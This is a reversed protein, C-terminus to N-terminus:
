QGHTKGTVWLTTMFTCVSFQPIPFIHLPITHLLAFSLNFNFLNTFDETDQLKFFFIKGMSMFMWWLCVMFRYCIDAPSYTQVCFILPHELIERLPGTSLALRLEVSPLFVVSVMQQRHTQRPARGCPAGGSSRRPGVCPAAGPSGCVSAGWAQQRTQPIETNWRGSAAIIFGHLSHIENHSPLLVPQLSGVNIPGVQHYLVVEVTCFAYNNGQALCFQVSARLPWQIAYYSMGRTSIIHFCISFLFHSLSFNLSPSLSFSRVSNNLKPDRSSFLSFINNNNPQIRLWNHDTRTWSNCTSFHFYVTLPLSLGSRDVM